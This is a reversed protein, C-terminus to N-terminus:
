VPQKLRQLLYPIASEFNVGYTRHAPDEATLRIIEAIYDVAIAASEEVSKDNMLAGVCTSAYIDGTGHCLM